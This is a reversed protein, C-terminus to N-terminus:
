GAKGDDAGKTWDAATETIRQKIQAFESEHYFQICIRGGPFIQINQILSVVAKRTLETLNQHEKFAEMWKFNGGVGAAIGDIKAKLGAIVREADEGRQTYVANFEMYDQQNLIGDALRELLSRKLRKCREAEERKQILQTQLQAAEAQQLPLSDLYETMDGFDVMLGIRNQVSALVAQTLRDERICHNGCQGGYKSAGCVYYVYERSGRKVPHRMSIYLDTNM